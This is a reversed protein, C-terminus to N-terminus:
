ATTRWAAGSFPTLGDINGALHVLLRMHPGVQPPNARAVTVTHKGTLLAQGFEALPDPVFGLHLGDSMIKVARANATNSADPKLSLLDGTQLRGIWEQAELTRHRIGHVLFTCFASGTEGNFEPMQLLEIADGQRYGGSKSLIEWPGADESLDLAELYQPRDVRKASIVRESFAPFLRSRAYRRGIDRFGILPHFDPASVASKLYAFEYGGVVQDLFGIARYVETVPHRQTVILRSRTAALAGPDLARQDLLDARSM